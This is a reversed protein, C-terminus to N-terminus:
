GPLKAWEAGEEAQVKDYGRGGAGAVGRQPRGMRNKNERWEWRKFHSLKSKGRGLESEAKWGDAM